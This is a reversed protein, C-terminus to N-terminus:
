IKYLIRRRDSLINHCTRATYFYMSPSSMLYVFKHLNNFSAFQESTQSAAYFLENRYNEFMSCELLSHQESEIQNSDCLICLRESEDLNEYRGTELRLPAVGCRFKALASRYKRPMTKTVYADSSYENKLLRYTRLKNRGNGRIAEERNLSKAWEVEYHEFLVMNMDDIVSKINTTWQNSLLHEMNLKNFFTETKYAWNRTNGRKSWLFVRKNIRSPDMNMLRCWLRTVALGIRQQPFHWGMDGETAANPTYKGVGLFFRCAKHQVSNISSFERNGWIGAGYSIIPQVLTDYLKTYVQYPMGGSAKFKAFLLGLARSASKAVMTATIQYDLHESLILGLYKYQLVVNIVQAGYKFCYETRDFSPPRFHVIQTKETNVQMCWKSCWGSLIDLLSQLDEESEALLCIDDAYLLIAVREDGIIVGKGSMKIEGSLDNIYLNFLLPSLICGQKLGTEVNFWATNFGNVRVCCEVDTYLLQLASLMKNSIGMNCLKKWLLQRNIRDYAKSFDVFATFTQQRRLKRTEIISTVTSLQDITSRGRIFGNQEDTLLDNIEAWKVLRENLIGCYVKYMTCALTIGRYNAPDRPDKTSDKPLPNIIGKRWVTPMIHKEFCLDFLKYMFKQVCESRLAEIPLQDVGVAKGSKMAALVKNVETRSISKDLDPVSAETTVSDAWSLEDSPLPKPNLLKSFDSGWKELVTKPDNSASDGNVVEWPINIKRESVVGIKGIMKWFEKSDSSSLELIEDQARKWYNRKASQVHRDFTKQALRMDTKLRQKCMGTAHSWQHEAECFTNWLETLGDHWWPKKIRRRKNSLGTRLKVIRKSLKRDMEEKVARCFGNYIDDVGDQENTIKQLAVIAEQIIGVANGSRLFDDPYDRSWHEHTSTLTEGVFNEIHSISDINLHFNWVLISHDPVISVRDIFPSGGREQMRVSVRHVKFDSVYDLGDHPVLCYDVVALGKNSVSTFDDQTCIGHRGNLVVCSSSILFDEFKYGYLNRKFHVAERSPVLDVGEIFDLADGLYSNFDGCIYFKGLSQYEYIQTLLTTFFEDPDSNRTSHEPPLYCVCILFVYDCNKAVCKVWLIGEYSKDLPTFDFIEWLSERVLLGVGGSGCKTNVHLDKRNHGVWEYGDITLKQEKVLKSEAVGLIDIESTCLQRLM